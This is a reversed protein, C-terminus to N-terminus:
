LKIKVVLSSLQHAVSKANNSIQEIHLAFYRLHIKESLRLAELEQFIKRKLNTSLVEAERQYFLVKQIKDKVDDPSTFFTRSASVVNEASNSSLNTLELFDKKISEPIKPTEVDFQTLLDKSRDIIDDVKEILNLIDSAYNPMLSHLYFDNEVKRQIADAEKELSKLAKLNQEFEITNGEIYNHVGKTFNLIGLDLKDFFEDVSLAVSRSTKFINIM